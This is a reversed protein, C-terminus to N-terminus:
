TKELMFYTQFRVPEPIPQPQNRPKRNCELKLQQWM